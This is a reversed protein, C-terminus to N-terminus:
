RTVRAAAGAGGDRSSSAIAGGDAGADGALAAALQGKTFPKPLLPIGIADADGSAYGSMLLVQPVRRRERAYRALDRGDVGGPMVVDTLLLDIEGVGDLMRRGEVGDAAEIVAYGLAVLHRRVVRRVQADDEVVLAVGARAPPAGTDSATTGAPEPAPAAGAPTCPLLMTVTTGAGARSDLTIHGGSQKVFGDVISMGLGSGRGVGKTTFFPEFARAITADDMGVGQDRVAIRVYPGPPLQLAGAAAEDLAQADVHVEIAGGGPMADRANFLLNLLANELEHADVMAALPEPHGWITLQLNEPLSRRMLKGIRQVLPGVDVARPELPQQRSYALLGKILEAGRRAAVLAPEVFDAVDPEAPREECLSSLNGIVVTLINNFDHAMGGALQGIAERRQAQVLAAQTRKQEASAEVLRQNIARLEATRELVREELEANQRRIRGEYYRQDTVDSYLTVFGHSGPLPEGRVLLVRGNPRTREFQHPAFSRAAAVREAVARDPDATGYEGRDANYRMFSEFPAGFYAMEPPFELLRLFTLNWAVLRLDADFVTLGQDILHLAVQLTEYRQSPDLIRDSGDHAMSQLPDTRNARIRPTAMQGAFAAAFM